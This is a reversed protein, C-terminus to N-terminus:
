VKRIVHDILIIHNFTNFVMYAIVYYLYMNGLSYIGLDEQIFSVNGLGGQLSNVLLIILLIHCMECLLFTAIYYRKENQHNKPKFFDAIFITLAIFIINKYNTLIPGFLKM